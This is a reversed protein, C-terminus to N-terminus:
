AAAQQRLTGMLLLLMPTVWMQRAGVASEWAVLLLLLEASDMCCVMLM